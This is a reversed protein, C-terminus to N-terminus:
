ATVKIVDGDVLLDHQFEARQNNARAENALNPKRGTNATMSFHPKDVTPTVNGHPGVIVEVDQGPNEFLFTWWSDAAFDIVSTVALTFEALLGEAAEAFTLDSDDRDESTLEYSKCHDGYAVAAAADGVKKVTMYFGQKGNLASM